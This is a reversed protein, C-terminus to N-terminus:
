KVIENVYSKFFKGREAFNKFMDFSASAPSFLVIDGKKSIDNAKQVAQKLSECQYIPLEKKDKKLESSVAKEKSNARTINISQM